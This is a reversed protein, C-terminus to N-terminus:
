GPSACPVEYYPPPPDLNGKLTRIPHSEAEGHVTRVRREGGRGGSLGIQNLNVTELISGSCFQWHSPSHWCAMASTEAGFVGVGNGPGVESERHEEDQLNEGSVEVEHHLQPDEQTPLLVGCALLHLLDQVELSGQGIDGDRLLLPSILLEDVM